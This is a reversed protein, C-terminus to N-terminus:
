LLYGDKITKFYGATFVGSLNSNNSVNPTTAFNNTSLSLPTTSLNFNTKSFGVGIQEYFGEFLSEARASSIILFLLIVLVYKKIM